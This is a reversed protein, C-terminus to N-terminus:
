IGNNRPDRAQLRDQKMKLRMAKREKVEQEVMQYHDKFKQFEPDSLGNKIHFTVPLHLFPDQGLSEYYSRMNLFLAKKNAIHFNDEIKNYLKNELQKAVASDAPYSPQNSSSVKSIPKDKLGLGSKKEPYKCLLTEMYQSNKIQTWMFNVKEMDAGKDAIMWWFRNKFLSRVMLANNGKGISYKYL